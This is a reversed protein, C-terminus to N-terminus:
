VATNENRLKSSGVFSQDNEDNEKESYVIFVGAMKKRSLLSVHFFLQVPVWGDVWGSVVLWGVSSSFLCDVLWGVLWDILWDVLWGIM